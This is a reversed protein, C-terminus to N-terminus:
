DVERRGRNIDFKQSSVTLEIQKRLWSVCRAWAYMMLQDKRRKARLISITSSHFSPVSAHNYLCPSRVDDSRTDADKRVIKLRPIHSNRRALRQGPLRGEGEFARSKEKNELSNSDCTRMVRQGCQCGDRVSTAVVAFCEVYWVFLRSPGLAPFHLKTPRM